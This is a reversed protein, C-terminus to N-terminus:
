FVFYSFYYIFSVDMYGLISFLIHIINIILIKCKQKVGKWNFSIIYYQYALDEMDGGSASNVEELISAFKGKWNTKTCKWLIHRYVVHLETKIHM